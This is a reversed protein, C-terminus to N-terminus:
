SVQVIRDNLGLNLVTDMMGSYDHVLFYMLIAWFWSRHLPRPQNCTKAANGICWAHATKRCVLYAHHAMTPGFCFRSRPPPRLYYYVAAAAAAVVSLSYVSSCCYRIYPMVFGKKMSQPLRYVVTIDASGGHSCPADASPAHLCTVHRMCALYALPLALLSSSSSFFATKFCILPVM